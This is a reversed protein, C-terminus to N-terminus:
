LKIIDYTPSIICGCCANSSLFLVHFEDFSYFFHQGAAGDREDDGHHGLQELLQLFGCPQVQDARRDDCHEDAHDHVAKVRRIVLRLGADFEGRLFNQFEGDDQEAGAQVDRGHQRDTLEREGDHEECQRRAEAEAIHDALRQPKVPLRAAEDVCARADAAAAGDGGDRRDDLRRVHVDGVAHRCREEKVRDHDDHERQEAARHAKGVRREAQPGARRDVVGRADDGRAVGEALGGAVKGRHDLQRACEGDDRRHQDEGGDAHVELFLGGRLAAVM